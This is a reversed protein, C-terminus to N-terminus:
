RYVTFCLWFSMKVSIPDVLSMLHVVFSSIFISFAHSLKYGSIINEIICPLFTTYFENNM